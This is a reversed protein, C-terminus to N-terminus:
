EARDDRRRQPGKAKRRRPPEADLLLIAYEAVSLREWGHPWELLEVVIDGASFRLVKKEGGERDLCEHFRVTWERGQPSSFTRLADSGREAEKELEATTIARQQGSPTSPRRRLVVTARARLAELGPLDFDRWAAPYPAELRRKERDSEFVLWGDQLNGMFDEGRTAPHLHAPTVDWVRWEVRNSDTYERISM